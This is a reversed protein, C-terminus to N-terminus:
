CCIKKTLIDVSKEFIKRTVSRDIQAVGMYWENLCSETVAGSKLINYVGPQKILLSVTVMVHEALTAEEPYEYNPAPVVMEDNIDYTDLSTTVVEMCADDFSGINVPRSFQTIVNKEDPVVTIKDFVYPAIPSHANGILLDRPVATNYSFISQLMSKIPRYLITGSRSLEEFESEITTDGYLLSTHIYLYPFLYTAKKVDVVESNELEVPMGDEDVQWQRCRTTQDMMKNLIFSVHMYSPCGPVNKPFYACIEKALDELNKEFSAWNADRRDRDARNNKSTQMFVTQKHTERRGDHIKRLILIVVREMPDYITDSLLGFTFAVIEETDYMWQAIDMLQYIEFPSDVYRSLETEYLRILGAYIVLQRVYCKIQHQVRTGITKLNQLCLMRDLESMVHNTVRFSVDPLLGVYILKLVWYHKLRMQALFTTFYTRAARDADTACREFDATISGPNKLLHRTNNTPFIVLMRSLFAVDMNTLSNNTIFIFSVSVNRTRVSTNFQGTIPDKDCSAVDVQGRTLIDKINDVFSPNNNTRSATQKSSAAFNSCTTENFVLIGDEFLYNGDETTQMAAPTMRTMTMVSNPFSSERLLDVSFSKGTEAAGPIFSSWKLPNGFARWADMSGFYYLIFMLHCSSVQMQCETNEIFHIMANSFFGYKSTKMPMPKRQRHFRRATTQYYSYAGTGTRGINGSSVTCEFIFVLVRRIYKKVSSELRADFTRIFDNIPAFWQKVVTFQNSFPKSEVTDVIDEEEDSMGDGNDCCIESIKSICRSALKYIQGTVDRQHVPPMKNVLWMHDFINVHALNAGFPFTWHMGTIVDSYFYSDISSQTKNCGNALSQELERQVNFMACPNISECDVGTISKYLSHLQAQTHVHISKDRKAAMFVMKVCNELNVAEKVFFWLRYHSVPAGREMRGSVEYRDDNSIGCIEEPTIMLNNRREETQKATEHCLVTELFLETRSYITPITQVATAFMTQLFNIMSQIQPTATKYPVVFVYPSGHIEPVRSVWNWQKASLCEKKLILLERKM